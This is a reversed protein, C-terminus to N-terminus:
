SSPLQSVSKFVFVEFGELSRVYFVFWRALSDLGSLTELSSLEGAGRIM